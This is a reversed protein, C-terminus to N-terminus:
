ILAMKRLCVLVVIAESIVLNNWIDNFEPSIGLSQFVAYTEGLLTVWLYSSVVLRCHIDRVEIVKLSRSCMKAELM